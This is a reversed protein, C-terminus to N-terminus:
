KSRKGKSVLNFVWNVDSLFDSIRDQFLPLYSSKKSTSLTVHVSNFNADPQELNNVAVCFSLRCSPLADHLNTQKVFFFKSTDSYIDRFFCESL